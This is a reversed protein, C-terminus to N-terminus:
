WIITPWYCVQNATQLGMKKPRFHVMIIAELHELGKLLWMLVEILFMRTWFTWGFVMWIGSNKLIWKPWKGDNEGMLASGNPCTEAWAKWRPLSAAWSSARSIHREPRVCTRGVPRPSPHNLEHFIWPFDMSTSSKSSQTGEHSRFFFDM